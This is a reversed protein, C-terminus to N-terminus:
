AADAQVGHAAAGVKQGSHHGQAARQLPCSPFLNNSCFQNTRVMCCCCCQFATSTSNRVGEGTCAGM